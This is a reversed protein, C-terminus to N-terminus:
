RTAEQRIRRITRRDAAVLWRSAARVHSCLRGGNASWDCSCAWTRPDRDRYPAQVTYTKGPTSGSSVTFRGAGDYRVAIAAAKGKVFPSRAVRPPRNAIIAADQQDCATDFTPGSSPRGADAWAALADAVRPLQTTTDKTDPM